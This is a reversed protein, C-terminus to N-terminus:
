WSASVDLPRSARATDLGCTCANDQHLGKRCTPFHTAYKEVVEAMRANESRLAALIEAAKPSVGVNMACPATGRLIIDCLEPRDCSPCHTWAVPMPDLSDSHPTPAAAANIVDEPTFPLDITTPPAAEGAAARKAEVNKRGAETLRAGTGELLSEPVWHTDSM